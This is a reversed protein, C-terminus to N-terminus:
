DYYFHVSKVVASWNPDGNSWNNLIITGGGAPSPLTGIQEGDIYFQATDDRSKTFRIEHFAGDALNRAVTIHPNQGPLHSTVWAASNTWEFDLEATDSAYFFFGFCTGPAPLKVNAVFTGYTIFQFAVEASEVVSQSSPDFPSVVLHLGNGDIFVNNPNARFSYPGSDAGHTYTQVQMGPVSAVQLGAQQFDQDYHHTWPAAIANLYLTATDTTSANLSVTPSGTHSAAPQATLSPSPQWCDYSPRCTEKGIAQDDPDNSLCCVFDDVCSDTASDCTLWPDVADSALTPQSRRGRVAVTALFM